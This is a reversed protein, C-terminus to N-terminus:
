APDWEQNIKFPQMRRACGHRAVKSHHLGESSNADGAAEEMGAEVRVLYNCGDNQDSGYGHRVVHLM